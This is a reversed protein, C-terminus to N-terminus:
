LIHRRHRQRAILLSSSSNFILHGSFNFLCCSPDFLADTLGDAVLLQGVLSNRILHLAGSAFSPAVNLIGGCDSRIAMLRFRFVLCVCRASFNAVPDVFNMLVDIVSDVSM